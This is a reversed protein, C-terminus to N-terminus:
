LRHIHALFEQELQYGEDRYKTLRGAGKKFDIKKSLIGFLLLPCYGHYSITNEAVKVEFVILAGGTSGKYFTNHGHREALKFNIPEGMGPTTVRLKGKEFSATIFGRSNFWHAIQSHREDAPRTFAHLQIQPM